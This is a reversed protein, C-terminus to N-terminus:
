RAATDNLSLRRHLFSLFRRYTAVHLFPQAWNLTGQHQERLHAIIRPNRSWPLRSFLVPLPLATQRREFEAGTTATLSETIVLGPDLMSAQDFEVFVSAGRQTQVVGFPFHDLM